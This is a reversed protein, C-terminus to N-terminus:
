TAMQLPTKLDAGAPAGGGGGSPPKPQASVTHFAQVENIFDSQYVDSIPADLLIALRAEQEANVYKGKAQLGQIEYAVTQVLEQHLRPYVSKVAKVAESSITGDELGGLLTDVPNRIYGSIRHRKLQELSPMGKIPDKTLGLGKKQPPAVGDMYRKANLYQFMFKDALDPHGMKAMDAAFERVRAEHFNSTLEADIKEREEVEKATLKKRREAPRVAKAPSQELFGRVSSSMRKRTEAVAGAAEAGFMSRYAAEAEYREVVRGMRKLAHKGAVLALGGLPHGGLTAWAITNVDGFGFKLGQQSLEQGMKKGTMEALHESVAKNARAAWYQEALDADVSAMSGRLERSIVDRIRSSVDGMVGEVKATAGMQDITKFWDGWQNLKYTPAEGPLGPEYKLMSREYRRVLRHAYDAEASMGYAMDIDKHIESFIRRGDPASWAHNKQLNEAVDDMILQSRKATRESAERIAPTSSKFTEGEETLVRRYGKVADIARNGGSTAETVDTPTAGLRRMVIAADADAEGVKSAVRKAAIADGVAGGGRRAAGALGSAAGIGGGLLGGMLGGDVGSSIMAEVTLDKDKIVSSSATHAMNILAGEVSGRAALEIAPKAISGMGALEPLLKSVGAEALAGAEGVWGAPTAVRALKGLASMGGEAAAGAAAREAGAAGGRLLLSEGGSLAAPLLTGAVESATYGPQVELGRMLGADTIGLKVAAAPGLGLTLGSALGTTVPAIPGLAAARDLNQQATASQKAEQETALKGGEELLQRAARPDARVTRGTQPDKVFIDAM